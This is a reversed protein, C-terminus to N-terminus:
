RAKRRNGPNSSKSGELEWSFHTFPSPISPSGARAGGPQASPSSDAPWTQAGPRLLHAHPAPVEARGHPRRGSGEAAVGPAGAGGPPPPARVAPSGDAPVPPQPHHQLATRQGGSAPAPGPSPDPPEPPGPLHGEAGRPTPVPGRGGPGSPARDTHRTGPPPSPPASRWPRTTTSLPPWGQEPRPPDQEGDEEEEQAREAEMGQLPSVPSPPTAPIQFSPLVGPNWLATPAPLPPPSSPAPHRPESCSAPNRTLGGM